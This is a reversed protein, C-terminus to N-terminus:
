LGKKRLTYIDEQNLQMCSFSVCKGRFLNTIMDKNSKSCKIGFVIEKIRCGDDLPISLFPSNCSDSYSLLRVEDEYEWCKAKQSFANNTNIPKKISIADDIYEIPILHRFDKKGDRKECFDRSLEYVICFGKHSDTYHSWMLMNSLISDDAQYTMRNAVFSRIRFYKFAESQARIHEKRDCNLSLLEPTSVINALSDFPDNMESANCMTIENNILDSMSYDNIRRFSYLTVMEKDRIQPHPKIKFAEFLMRKYFYVASDKPKGLLSYVEAALQYVEQTKISLISCFSSPELIANLVKINAVYDKVTNFALKKDGEMLMIAKDINNKISDINKGMHYECAAKLFYLRYDELELKCIREYFLEDKYAPKKVDFCANVFQEITKSEM